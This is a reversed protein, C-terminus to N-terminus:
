AHEVIFKAVVEKAEIVVEVMLKGSASLQIGTMSKIFGVIAGAVKYKATLEENSSNMFVKLANIKQQAIGSEKAEGSLKKEAQTKKVGFVKALDVSSGSGGDAPKANEPYQTLSISTKKQFHEEWDLQIAKSGEQAPGTPDNIEAVATNISSKGHAARKTNAIVKYIDNKNDINDFCTALLAEIEETIWSSKTVKQARVSSRLAALITKYVPM